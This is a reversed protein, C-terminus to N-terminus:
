PQQRSWGSLFGTPNSEPKRRKSFSTSYRSLPIRVEASTTDRSGKVRTNRHTEAERQIVNKAQSEAHSQDPEARTHAYTLLLPLGASRPSPGRTRRPNTWVGRLNCTESAQRRNESIRNPIFALHRTSSACGSDSPSGNIVKQCM